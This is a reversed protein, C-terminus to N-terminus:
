PTATHPYVTRRQAKEETSVAATADNRAGTERGASVNGNTNDLQSNQRAPVYSCSCVSVQAQM